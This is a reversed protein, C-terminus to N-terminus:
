SVMSYGEKVCSINNGCNMIELIIIVSSNFDYFDIIWYRKNVGKYLINILNSIM